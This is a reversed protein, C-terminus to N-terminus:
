QRVMRWVQQDTVHEAESLWEDPPMLPLDPDAWDQQEPFRREDKTRGFEDHLFRAAVWRRVWLPVREPKRDAPATFTERRNAQELRYFQRLEAVSPRHELERQALVVAQVLIECDLQIIGRVYGEIEQTNWARGTPWSTVIM